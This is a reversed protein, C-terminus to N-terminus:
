ENESLVDTFTIGTQAVLRGNFYNFHISTHEKM